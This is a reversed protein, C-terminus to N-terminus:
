LIPKAPHLYIMVLLGLNILNRDTEINERVTFNFDSLITSSGYALNGGAIYACACAYACANCIWTLHFGVYRMCLCHGCAYACASPFPFIKISTSISISTNPGNEHHFLNGQAQAQEQM